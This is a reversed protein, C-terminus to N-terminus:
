ILKAIKETTRKCDLFILGLRVDKTTSVSLVANPGAPLVLLCGEKGRIYIQEFEGRKIEIVAREALSLLPVMMNAVKTEDVDEPLASVITEGETSVITAAKVEPIAALLKKLISDLNELVPSELMQKPSFEPPKITQKSPTEIFELMELEEEIENIIHLKKQEM